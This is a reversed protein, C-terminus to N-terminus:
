LRAANQGVRHRDYADHYSLAEGQLVHHLDNLRRINHHPGNGTMNKWPRTVNKDAGAWKIPRVEGYARGNYIPCTM